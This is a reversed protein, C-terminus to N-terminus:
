KNQHVSQASIEEVTLGCTEVIIDQCEEETPPPESDDSDTPDATPDDSDTPDSTPDESPPPESAFEVCSYLQM